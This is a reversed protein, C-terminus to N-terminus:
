DQNISSMAQCIESAKRAIDAVWPPCDGDHHLLINDCVGRQRLVRNLFHFFTSTEPRQELSEEVLDMVRNMEAQLHQALEMKGSRVAQHLAVFPRPDVHVMSVVFGSAGLFLSDALVREKGQFLYFNPLDSMAPIMSKFRDFDGSSDKFGIINGHRALRLIVDGDLKLGAFEPIDYLMVPLPSADAFKLLITEVEKQSYDFYGPATVVAIHAGADAMARANELMDPLGSAMCGAALSDDGGIQDAVTRCITAREKRSFWPGRGSSGAVFIGGCGASMMDHCVAKLGDLDLEGGLTCPTVIPVVIGLDKM